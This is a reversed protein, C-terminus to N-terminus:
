VGYKNCIDFYKDILKVIKNIYTNYKQNSINSKLIRVTFIIYNDEEMSENWYSYGSVDYWFYIEIDKNEFCLKDIKSFFSNYQKENLKLTNPNQFMYDCTKENVQQIDYINRFGENDLDYGINDFVEERNM